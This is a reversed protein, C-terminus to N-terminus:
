KFCKIIDQYAEMDKKINNIQREYENVKDVAVRLKQKSYEIEANQREKDFQKKAEKLNTKKIDKLEMKNEVENLKQIGEKDTKLEYHKLNLVIKKNSICSYCETRGGDLFRIIQYIFTNNFKNQVIDGIKFKTDPKYLKINKKYTHTKTEKLWVINDDFKEITAIAENNSFKTGNKNVVKDGIKFEDTM